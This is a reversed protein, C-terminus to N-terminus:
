SRNPDISKIAMEITMADGIRKYVFNRSVKFIGAGPVELTEGPFLGAHSVHSCTDKVIKKHLRRSLRGFGWRYVYWNATAEPALEDVPERRRTLDGQRTCAHGFEHAAVVAFMDADTMPAKEWLRVEGSEHWKGIVEQDCRPLPGILRSRFLVRAFDEPFRENIQRLVRAVIRRSRANRLTCPIGLIPTATMPFLMGQRRHRPFRFHGQIGNKRAQRGHLSAMLAVPNRGTRSDTM